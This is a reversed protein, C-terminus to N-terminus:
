TLYKKRHRRKTWSNYLTYGSMKKGKGTETRVATDAQEETGQDRERLTQTCKAVPALGGIKRGQNGGRALGTLTLLMTMQLCVQENKM